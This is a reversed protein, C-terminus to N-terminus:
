GTMSSHSSIMLPMLWIGVQLATMQRNFPEVDRRRILRMGPEVYPLTSAKWYEAIRSKVATAARYAPHRTDFLKKSASLVKADADFQGAAVRTQDQSLTKRTGLWHIKLRVATTEAQLRQGLNRNKRFEPTSGVVTNM